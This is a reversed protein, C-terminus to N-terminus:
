LDSNEIAEKIAKNREIITKLLDDSASHDIQQRDTWGHAPQKLIFIIGATNGAGTILLKECIVEKWYLMKKISRSLEMNGDKAHTRRLELVYDYDLNNLLCCEKIIPIQGQTIKENLYKDFVKILSNIEYKPKKPRGRAM